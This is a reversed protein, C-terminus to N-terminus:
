STPPAVTIPQNLSQWGTLTNNRTERATLSARKMAIMATASRALPHPRPPRTASPEGTTSTVSTEPKAEASSDSQPKLQGVISKVSKVKGISPKSKRSQRENYAAIAHLVDLGSQLGRAANDSYSAQPLGFTWILVLGKDDAIFQRLQGGQQLLMTAAAHSCCCPATSEPFDITSEPSYCSDTATQM